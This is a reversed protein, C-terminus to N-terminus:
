SLAACIDVLIHGKLSISPNGNSDFSVTLKGASEFLAPLGFSAPDIFAPFGTWAAGNQVATFSGDPYSTATTIGSDRTTITKGNAPNTFTTDVVGNKVMVTTGDPTTYTKTFSKDMGQQAYDVEFPCVGFPDDPTAADLTGSEPSNFVWGDGRGGALAPSATAAGAVLGLLAALAVILGARRVAIVGVGEAAV